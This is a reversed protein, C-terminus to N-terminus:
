ARVPSGGWGIRGVAARYAPRASGLPDATLVGVGCSGSCVGDYGGGAGGYAALLGTSRDSITLRAGEDVQIGACGYGSRCVNAALVTLDAAANAELRFASQFAGSAGSPLALSLNSAVVAVSAGTPVLVRVTTSTGSLVYEAAGQITLVSNVYALGTWDDAAVTEGDIAVQTAGAAGAAWGLIMGGAWAM